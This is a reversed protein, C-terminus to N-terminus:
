QPRDAVFDKYRRVVEDVAVGTLAPNAAGPEIWLRSRNALAHWEFAMALPHGANEEDSRCILMPAQVRDLYHRPSYYERFERKTREALFFDMAERWQEGHWRQWATALPSEAYNVFMRTIFEEEEDSVATIPMDILLTDVRDPFDAAVRAAIRGGLTTGALHARAYGAADMVAIVDDRWQSTTMSTIRESGGMGSFDLLCVEFHAALADAFGSDVFAVHSQTSGPLLVLPEGSGLTRYALQQGRSNRAQM